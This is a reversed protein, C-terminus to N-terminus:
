DNTKGKFVERVETQGWHLMMPEIDFMKGRLPKKLDRIFKASSGCVCWQEPLALPCFGTRWMAWWFALTGRPCEHELIYRYEKLFGWVGRVSQRVFMPSVNYAPAHIPFSLTRLFHKQDSDAGMANYKAYVRPNLPVCVGFQEALAFGDLAGEGMIRMDDNLCCVIDFESYQDPTALIQNSLHIWRRPCEEHTNIITQTFHLDGVDRERDTFLKIPLTKPWVNRLNKILSTIQQDRDGFSAIVIGRKLAM